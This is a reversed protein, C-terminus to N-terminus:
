KVLRNSHTAISGAKELGRKVGAQAYPIGSTALNGGGGSFHADDAARKSRYDSVLQCLIGELSTWLPEYGLGGVEPRARTNSSDVLLHVSTLDRLPPQLSTILSPLRPLIAGVYRFLVGSSQSLFYTTLYYAQVVHAFLLMLSPSLVQFKINRETLVEIAGSYDGYAIPPGADTVIFSRGGTDPNRGGHELEVM